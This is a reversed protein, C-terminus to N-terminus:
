YRIFAGGQKCEEIVEPNINGESNLASIRANIASIGYKETHDALAKIAEGAKLALEYAKLQSEETIIIADRRAFIERVEDSLEIISVGEPVIYCDPTLFSYSGMRASVSGIFTNFRQMLEVLISEKERRLAPIKVCSMEQMITETIIRRCEVGGFLIDRVTQTDFSLGFESLEEPTILHQTEQFNFQFIAYENSNHKGIIKGM